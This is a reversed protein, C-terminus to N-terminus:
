ESALEGLRKGSYETAERLLMLTLQLGRWDGGVPVEDVGDDIALRYLQTKWQWVVVYRVESKTSSLGTRGLFHLRERVTKWCCDERYGLASLRTDTACTIIRPPVM